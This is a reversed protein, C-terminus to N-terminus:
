HRPRLLGLADSKLWRAAADSEGVLFLLDDAPDSPGLGDEAMHVDLVDVVVPKHGQNGVSKVKLVVLLQEGTSHLAEQCKAVFIRPIDM